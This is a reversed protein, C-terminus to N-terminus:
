AFKPLIKTFNPYFKSFNSLMQASVFHQMGLFMLDEVAINAFLFQNM